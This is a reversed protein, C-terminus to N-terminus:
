QRYYIHWHDRIYQQGQALTWAGSVVKRYALYEDGDKRQAEAIPELWLNSLNSSGGIGLPIFHDLEYNAPSDTYGHQRMLSRKISGTVSEPPRVRSSWGSVGITRSITAQTVRPDLQSTDVTSTSTAPPQHVVASQAAPESGGRIARVAPQIVRAVAFIVVLALM